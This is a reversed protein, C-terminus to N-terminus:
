GKEQIIWQNETFKNCSFPHSLVTVSPVIPCLMSPYYPVEEVYQYKTPPLRKKLGLDTM